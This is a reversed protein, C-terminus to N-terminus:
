IITIIATISIFCGFPIKSVLKKRSYLFLGFITALWCSYIFVLLVDFYGLWIGISGLFWKDGEGFGNRKRIFFYINNIFYIVSFGVFFGLIVTQFVETLNSENIFNFIVGLIAIIAITPMHLEFKIFDTYFLIILFIFLVSYFFAETIDFYYYSFLFFLPISIEFIIINTDFKQNCNKCRGYTFLYSTLPLFGLLFISNKCNDCKPPNFYKAGKVLNHSFNYTILAIIFGVFIISFSYTLNINFFQKNLIFPSM